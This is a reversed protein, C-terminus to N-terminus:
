SDYDPPLLEWKKMWEKNSVKNGLYAYFTVRSGAVRNDDEKKDNEGPRSAEARAVEFEERTLTGGRYKEYVDAELGTLEEPNIDRFHPDYNQGKEAKVKEAEKIRSIEQRFNDIREKEQSATVKQEISEM